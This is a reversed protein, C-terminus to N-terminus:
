KEEKKFFTIKDLWGFKSDVVLIDLLIFALALWGFFAYLEDHVATLSGELATKAVKDMQKELENLSGKNSANVYIGKGQEAIRIALDENLATRVPEGTEPDIFYSSRGQPIQVPESGGVGIVDIQINRKSAQEVAQM